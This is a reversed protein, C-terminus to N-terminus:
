CLALRQAETYSLGKAITGVVFGLNFLYSSSGEGWSKKCRETMHRSLNMEVEEIMEDETLPAAEYDGLFEKHANALGRQFEPHALLASLMSMPSDPPHEQRQSQPLAAVSVITGTSTTEAYNLM